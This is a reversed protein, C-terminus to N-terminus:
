LRVSARYRCRVLIRCRPSLRRLAAVIQRAAPDHPVTVVALECHAAVSRALVDPDSADGAVTAFGQQAFPHLNVPSLDILSVAMGATELRSAVQSGIPGLGVVVAGASRRPGADLPGIGERESELMPDSRSLGAKILLPTLILSGLAVFLVLHFWAPM